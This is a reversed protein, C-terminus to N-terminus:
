PSREEDNKSFKLNKRKRKREKERERKRKREQREQRKERRKRKKGPCDVRLFALHLDLELRGELCTCFNKNQIRPEAIGDVAPKPLHILGNM